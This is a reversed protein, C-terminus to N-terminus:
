STVLTVAPSKHLPQPGTRFNCGGPNCGMRARLILTKRLFSCMDAALRLPTSPAVGKEPEESCRRSRQPTGAPRPCRPPLAETTLSTSHFLGGRTAWPRGEQRSSLLSLRIEDQPDWLARSM